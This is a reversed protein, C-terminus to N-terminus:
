QLERVQREVFARLEPTLGQLQSARQFAALAVERQGDARLAMGRGMEWVANGPVIRLASAYLEAAHRHRGVRSMVAATMSLYEANWQAHPLGQELTRLAETQAGRDLQLRALLMIQRPQRPNSRLGDQLLKEAWEREGRELLVGLLAQRPASAAPDIDLAARWAAEAEDTRGGRFLEMGRRFEQEAREAAELPRVQKDIRGPVALENADVVPESPAQRALPGERALSPREEDMASEPTDSSPPPAQPEAPVATAAPEPAPVEPPVPPPVQPTEPQIPVPAPLATAPSQQPAIPAQAPPTVPAPAQVREPPPAPELRETWWWALAAVILALGLLWSYAPLRPFRADGAPRVGRPLTAPGGVEGAHRKELDKLVRNILSVADVM